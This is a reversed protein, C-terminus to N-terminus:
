RKVFQFKKRAAKQGYKKREKLRSDVTLLDYKRLVAKLEPDLKLLARSIGLQIADAQGKKGGGCINIELDVNQAKGTVKGPLAIKSKTLKTDFYKDYSIGNVVINGKGSRLWVRAISSKRRGVGHINNVATSKKM